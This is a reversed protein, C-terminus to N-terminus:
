RLHSSSPGKRIGGAAVAAPPPSRLRQTEAARDALQRTSPSTVLQRRSPSTVLQRNSPAALLQRHSPSTVLQRSSPAKMTALSSQGRMMGQPKMKGDQGNEGESEITPPLVSAQKGLLELRKAASILTSQEETQMPSAGPRYFTYRQLSVSSEHEEEQTQLKQQRAKLKRAVTDDDSGDDDDEEDLEEQKGAVRHDSNTNHTGASSVSISKTHSSSANDVSPSSTVSPTAPTPTHGQFPLNDLLIRKALVLVRRIQGGGGIKDRVGNDVGGNEVGGVGGRGGVEKENEMRLVDIDDDTFSIKKSLRKSFQKSLMRPLNPAAYHSEKKSKKMKGDSEEEEELDGLLRYSNTREMVHQDDMSSMSKQSLLARGASPQRALVGLGGRELPPLLSNRRRADIGEFLGKLENDVLSSRVPRCIKKIIDGTILGQISANADDWRQLDRVSAPRNVEAPILGLPPGELLCTLEENELPNLAIWWGSSNSPNTVKVLRLLIYHVRLLQLAIMRLFMEDCDNSRAKSRLLSVTHDVLTSQLTTLLAPTSIYLRCHAAGGTESDEDEQKFTDYAIVEMTQYVKHDVVVVELFNGSQWFTKCGNFVVEVNNNTMAPVTTSDSLPTAKLSDVKSSKTM